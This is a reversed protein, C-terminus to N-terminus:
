GVSTTITDMFTVVTAEGKVICSASMTAVTPEMVAAILLPDPPAEHTKELSPDKRLCAMVGLFGPPPMVQWAIEPVKM